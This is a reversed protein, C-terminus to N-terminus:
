YLHSRTLSTSWKSGFSSSDFQGNDRTELSNRLNDDLSEIRDQKSIVPSNYERKIKKNLSSTKRQREKLRVSNYVLGM